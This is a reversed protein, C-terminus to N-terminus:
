ECGRDADDGRVGSVDGAGAEDGGFGPDNDSSEVMENDAMEVIPKLSQLYMKLEAYQSQKLRKCYATFAISGREAAMHAEQKLDRPATLQAATPTVDRQPAIGDGEVMVGNAPHVWSHLGREEHAEEMAAAMQYVNLPMDRRLRRKATKECMAPYGIETDAWPPKDGRPSKAKVAMLEDVSLVRVIPPRDRASARAWAAIIRRKGPGTEGGLVRDHRVVGAAEDFEFGDGERVVRGVITYGARAGLTNYGLYGIVPQVVGKFPVLFGQGTVGDVELGLVAFTMTANLLSQRTCKTLLDPNREASVVITRILREPPMIRGLVEAFKPALPRLTNEFIALDNSLVV